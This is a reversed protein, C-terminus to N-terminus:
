FVKLNNLLYFYLSNIKNKSPSFVRRTSRFKTFSRVKSYFSTKSLSNYMVDILANMPANKDDIM